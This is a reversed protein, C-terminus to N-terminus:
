VYFDLAGLFARRIGQSPRLGGGLLTHSKALDRSLFSGPMFLPGTSVHTWAKGQAGRQQQTAQPGLWHASGPTFGM